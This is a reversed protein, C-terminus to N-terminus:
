ACSDLQEDEALAKPLTEVDDGDCASPLRPQPFIGPWGTAKDASVSFWATTRPDHLPLRNLIESRVRSGHEIKMRAGVPIDGQRETWFMEHGM